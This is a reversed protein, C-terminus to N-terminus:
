IYKQNKGFVLLSSCITMILPRCFQSLIGVVVLLNMSNPRSRAASMGQLSPSTKKEFHPGVNMIKMELMAVDTLSAQFLHEEQVM